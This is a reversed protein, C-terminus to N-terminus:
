KRLIRLYLLVFKIKHRLKIHRHALVASNVEPFSNKWQEYYRRNGMLPHLYERQTLKLYLLDYSIEPYPQHSQFFDLALQTNTKAQEFRRLVMEETPAHLATASNQVYYYLAEPVYSLKGSFYLLQLFLVMDEGHTYSPPTIDPHDYLSRRVLKSWLNWPIDQSFLRRYLEERSLGEVFARRQRIRDGSVVNYDCFVIDADESEAKEYLKRYMDADVWDDSDCHAVYKGRAVSLGTQRAAPLGMNHEHHLIRVQPTREPFEKLVSELVAMSNDTTCDDVFIFEMNDLSQSMLQRTCKEIYMEVGYVPIVVSVAVEKM